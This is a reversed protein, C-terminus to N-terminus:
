NRIDTLTPREFGGFLRTISRGHPGEISAGAEKHRQQKWKSREVVRAYM